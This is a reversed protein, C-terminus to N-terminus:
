KLEKLATDIDFDNIPNLNSVIKKADEVAEHVAEIKEQNLKTNTEIINEKMQDLNLILIEKLEDLKQNYQSNLKLELINLKELFNSNKIKSRILGIVLGFLSIGYVCVFTWIAACINSWDLTKLWELFGEM